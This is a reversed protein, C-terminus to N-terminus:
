GVGVYETFMDPPLLLIEILESGMSKEDIISILEFLKSISALEVDEPMNSLLELMILEGMCSALEVDAFINSLLELTILEGMRSGLDIDLELRVSTM